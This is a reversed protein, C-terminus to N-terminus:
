KYRYCLVPVFSVFECCRVYFERLGFKVLSSLLYTHFLFRFSIVGVYFIAKLASIKMASLIM